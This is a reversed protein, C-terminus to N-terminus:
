WVFPFALHKAKYPSHARIILGIPYWLLLLWNVTVAYSNVPSLRRFLYLERHHRITVMLVKKM